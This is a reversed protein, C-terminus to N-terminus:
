VLFNVVAATLVTLLGGRVFGRRAAGSTPGPALGTGTPTPTFSGTGLGTTPPTDPGDTTVDESDVTRTTVAESEEASTTPVHIPSTYSELWYQTCDGYCTHGDAFITAAYSEAAAWVEKNGEWVETRLGVDRRREWAHTDRYDTLTVTRKGGTMTGRCRPLLYADGSWTTGEHVHTRTKKNEGYDDHTFKIDGEPCCQVHKAMVDYATVRTTGEGSSWFPHYTFSSAATYSVPCPAYGVNSVGGPRFSWAAYCDPNLKDYPDGVQVATCEPLWTPLPVVTTPTPHGAYMFCTKEVAYLDKGIGCSAAPTFRTYVTPSAMKDSTSALPFFLHLPFLRRVPIFNNKITKCALFTPFRVRAEWWEQHSHASVDGLRSKSPISHPANLKGCSASDQRRITIPPVRSSPASSVRGRPLCPALERFTRM